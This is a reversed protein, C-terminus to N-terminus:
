SLMISRWHIGKPCTLDPWHYPSQMRSKLCRYTKPDAHKELDPTVRSWRKHKERQLCSTSTSSYICVGHPGGVKNVEECIRKPLDRATASIPLFKLVIKTKTERDRERCLDHWILVHLRSLSCEFTVKM